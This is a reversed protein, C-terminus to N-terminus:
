LIYRFGVVRVDSIAAGRGREDNDLVESQALKTNDRKLFMRIVIAMFAVFLGVAATASGGPIYRPSDFSPYMYTGYINAVNGIMNAVSICTSRKVLPRPFSNAVWTIIIQYASVAGMPMLFMAFFRVPTSLTASCLINGVVSIMILCVIHICRDGTRGSTYTVVLSVLFTAIWVPATILLTEINGYGLTSVVSPFFYQFTQTLLSAHQLITFLYLRYDRLAMKVGEMISTSEAIDAEGTDDILRWQAYSREEPTLWRTTAPFDPLVVAAILAIGVTITGEIIFLWRWANIGHAGDLNALVGAGLLGGFANALASGCYFWSIRHALESRTYWSSMLFIAGAFFPAEAFGLCFRAAILGGFSHAAAQAASIMGWIAMAVGLYLSPRIRTLILNSPIQMLLYGVFLISTALNFDTGTMGLDEELGGLRAQSLNNRDLFNLLYMLILLPILHLNVKRMLKKTQKRHWEKDKAKFERYLAAQEEDAGKQETVNQTKDVDHYEIFEAGPKNDIHKSSEM